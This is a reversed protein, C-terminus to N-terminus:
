RSRLSGDPWATPWRPWLSGRRNVAPGPGRLVGPDEAAEPDRAGKPRTTAPMSRGDLAIDKDDNDNNEFVKVQSVGSSGTVFEDGDGQEGLGRSWRVKDPPPVTRVEAHTFFPVRVGRLRLIWASLELDVRYTWVLTRQDTASIPPSCQTFVRQHCDYQVGPSRALAM